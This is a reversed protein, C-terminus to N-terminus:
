GLLVLGDKHRVPEDNWDWEWEVQSFSLVLPTGSDLLDATRCWVNDGEVRTVEVRLWTRRFGRLSYAVAYAPLSRTTM